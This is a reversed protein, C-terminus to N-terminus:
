GGAGSKKKLKGKAETESCSKKPDGRVASRGKRFM